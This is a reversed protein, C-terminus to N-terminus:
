IANEEGLNDSERLSSVVGSFERETKGHFALLRRVREQVEPRIDDPWEGACAIYSAMFNYSEAGSELCGKCYALTVPGMTSACDVVQTEKGCVDCKGAYAHQDFNSM